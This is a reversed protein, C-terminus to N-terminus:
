CPAGVHLRHVRWTPGPGSRMACRDIELDTEAPADLECVHHGDIDRRWRVRTAGLQTWVKSLSNRRAESLLRRTSIIWRM